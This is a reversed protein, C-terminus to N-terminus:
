TWRRLEVYYNSREWGDQVIEIGADRTKNGAPQRGVQLGLGRAADNVLEALEGKAFMHYYRNFVKPEQPQLQIDPKDQTHQEGVQGATEELDISTALAEADKAKRRTKKKQKAPVQPPSPSSLVWPM